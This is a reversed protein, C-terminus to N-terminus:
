ISPPRPFASCPAVPAPVFGHVIEERTRCRCPRTLNRAHHRPCRCTGTPFNSHATTKHTAPILHAEAKPSRRIAGNVTLQNPLHDRGAPRRGRATLLVIRIFISAM